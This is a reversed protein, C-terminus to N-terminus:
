GGPDAASALLGRVEDGTGRKNFHGLQIITKQMGMAAADRVYSMVTWDILEGAIMVETEGMM